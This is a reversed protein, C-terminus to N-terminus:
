KSKGTVQNIVNTLLNPPKILEKLINAETALPFGNELMEDLIEYVVVYNDKIVSESCDGFYDAFTDVVRHLFEVVFLPPVESLCVAVFYVNSRYVSILYHGRDTALVPPVDDPGHARKQADFFADCASRSIASKWHKEMFIDRIFIM